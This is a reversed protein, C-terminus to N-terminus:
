FVISQFVLKISLYHNPLRQLMGVSEVNSLLVVKACFMSLIFFKM